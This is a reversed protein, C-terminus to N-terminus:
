IRRKLSRPLVGDRKRKLIVIPKEPSTLLEEEQRSIQCLNRAVELSRVMIALPKQPRNKRLRLQDVVIEQHADKFSPLYIPSFWSGASKRERNSKHSQVNVILM